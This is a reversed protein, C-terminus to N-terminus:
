FFKKLGGLVGKLSEPAKSTLKDFSDGFKNGGGQGGQGGQGQPGLFACCLPQAHAAFCEPGMNVVRAKRNAWGEGHNATGTSYKASAM